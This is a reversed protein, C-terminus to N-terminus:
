RKLENEDSLVKDKFSNILKVYAETDSLYSTAHEAGDFLEYIVNGNARAIEESMYCPVFSDSAGHIILTPIKSNKVAIAATTETVSFGGFLRAGIIAFLKSAFEPIKKERGVKAIIDVASSYPCDAIVGRVNECIPEGSAMLVTAAGMSVGTLLIKTERGFRNLSFDVWDLVDFRELMGFTIRRGESEGGARQDILLLNHGRKLCETGSGACDRLPNGRYGHVQIELPAGDSAHYYRASLTLGDRSTIYVREFSIDSFADILARIRETYPAYGRKDIGSYMDREKKRDSYFAKRYAYYSASVTLAFIFIVVPCIIYFASM